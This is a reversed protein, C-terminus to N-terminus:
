NRLTAGFKEKLNKLLKNRVGEVEKDTLTKTPDQYWIRFTYSDKYIGTLEVNSIQFKFNSIEAMVEGVKTKPPLNLTIDEIQAPYKPIPKYSGIEASVNRLKEVYFEYYIKGNELVGFQGIENGKSKIVLRQSPIFHQSDEPEFFYKVNLEELLSEIVGKAQRYSYNSFIGALYMEEDPLNGKRPIYINAMEFLHFSEKEGSNQSAAEILSPALSMRLYETEPGLPNKLRLAVKPNLSDKSVLSSTYVEFGGAGKLFRKVKIEFNFPSNSLSQPLRGTMLESPLNHYGYIRGVEEVIDEPIDIDNARWSPVSTTLKKGKWTTEFGLAKLTKSIEGKSLLVGLRETIFDIDVEVKKAKYPNPYLDLIKKEPKGGTLKTFLEIGRSIGITVLEPDPGKEFLVAAETRHALSMSTRRISMPNYTQVFLLVNKTNEDVASNEGGMIGALDILRGSGDEIVIDGGPLTFTKGDLTTIKEGGGADSHSANRAPRLIMRHGAIKDYDFTHVPQGIEHMIYNSIDIVNNLPRVGVAMLREKMWDPSTKISVNKILVATFRACLNHDVGAKLYKVKKNLDLNIPKIPHLSVKINFRPLIAAVERAIGYVSVSDVRNTTVEILYVPGYQSKNLREVSPGCLSLCNAIQRPTAKTKLFERLWKDPILIDM